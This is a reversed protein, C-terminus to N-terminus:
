VTLVMFCLLIISASQQPPCRSGGHPPCSPILWVLTQSVPFGLCLFSCTCLDLIPHLEAHKYFLFVLALSISQFSFNWSPTTGWQGKRSRFSFIGQTVQSCLNWPWLTVCCRGLSVPRTRQPLGGCFRPYGSAGQPDGSSALTHMMKSVRIVKKMPCKKPSTDELVCKPSPPPSAGRSKLM